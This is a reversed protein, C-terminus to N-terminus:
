KKDKKVIIEGDATYRIMDADLTPEKKIKAGESNYAQCEEFGDVINGHKKQLAIFM